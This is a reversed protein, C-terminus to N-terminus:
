AAAPRFTPLLATTGKLNLARRLNYALASLTFEARVMALGRCLFTDHGWVRLTGLVHEVITKRARMIEPRAALRIAQREVVAENPLRSIRRYASRTCRAKLVCGACVKPQEYYRRQRGRDGGLRAFPLQQGAPCRYSDRDPQYSFDAKPYVKDERCPGATSAPAPVYTVINATDCKELQDAAHYGADAVTEIREVQLETRAAASMPHLQGLDNQDAVVDEAAILDHKADVAVQVNYGMGVKRQERCDPDTLAVDSGGSEALVAELERARAAQDRLQALKARLGRVAGAAGEQEADAQDLQETYREISADIGAVLERLQEATARRRPHNVAKFKAGDIAVLEAGFLELKRCLLNFERLVAKFRARHERRFAAITWHDPRLGGLLWIVELNRHTEAELRRSSRVRNLYGYVYLKLLVAPDYGPRGTGAAERPWELKKWDLGEVFADIARVPADAGVYEEVSRPLLQEQNRDEGEIFSM